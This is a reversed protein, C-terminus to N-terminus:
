AGGHALEGWQFFKGGGLSEPISKSRLLCATASVYREYLRRDRAPISCYPCTRQIAEREEVLPTPHWEQHVCKLTSFRDNTGKLLSLPTLVYTLCSPLGFGFCEHNRTIKQHKQQPFQHFLIPLKMQDVTVKMSTWVVDSKDSSVIVTAIKPNLERVLHSLCRCRSM